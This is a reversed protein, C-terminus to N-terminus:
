FTNETDCVNFSLLLLLLLLLCVYLQLILVNMAGSLVYIINTNKYDVYDYM